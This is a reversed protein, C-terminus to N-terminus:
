RGLGYRAQALEFLQETQHAALLATGATALLVGVLVALPAPRLPSAPSRLAALRVTVHSGAAGLVVAAPRQRVGRAAALAARALADAVTARHCSAAADEDAQRECCLELAAPLRRLLPSLAAAVEIVSQHVDHRHALHSREHALVARRGGADLTRLMGTTLVTRGARGPVAFAEPVPDDLVVLEGDGPLSAALRAAERHAAARRLLARGGRSAAVALLVLATVAIPAGAPAHARLVADSWHGALTLPRTEAVLPFALLALVGTSAGAALLTGVSLLWVAWAPPLARALPPALLGFAATLALAASIAVIM